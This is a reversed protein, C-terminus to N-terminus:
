IVTLKGTQSTLLLHDSPTATLEILPRLFIYFLYTFCRSGCYLTKPIPTCPHVLRQTNIVLSYDPLEEDSSSDSIVIPDSAIGPTSYSVSSNAVQPLYDDWSFRLMGRLRSAAPNATERSIERSSDVYKSHLLRRSRLSSRELRQRKFHSSRTRRPEEDEDSSWEPLKGAPGILSDHKQSERQTTGCVYSTNRDPNKLSLSDMILGSRTNEKESYDFIPEKKCQKTALDAKSFFSEIVYQRRRSCEM